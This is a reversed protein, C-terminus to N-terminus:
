YLIFIIFLIYNLSFNGLLLVDLINLVQMIFFLFKLSVGTYYEFESINKVYAYFSVNTVSAKLVVSAQCYLM